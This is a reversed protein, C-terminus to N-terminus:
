VPSPVLGPLWAAWFALNLTVVLARVVSSALAGFLPEALVCGMDGMRCKPWTPMVTLSRSVTVAKKAPSPKSVSPRVTRSVTMPM